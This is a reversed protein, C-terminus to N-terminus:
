AGRALKANPLRRPLKSHWFRYAFGIVRVVEAADFPKALVDYAGLSLAEAWLGEDVLRATIIFEPQESLSNVQALLSLWSGDILDRECLVVPPINDRLMAMADACNTWWYVAWSTHSLIKLLSVLDDDFPSIVMLHTRAESTQTVNQSCLRPHEAALAVAAASYSNQSYMLKNEEIDSPASVLSSTLPQRNV